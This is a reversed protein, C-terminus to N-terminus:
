IGFTFEVDRLGFSILRRAGNVFALPSDPPASISGRGLAPRSRVRSRVGVLRGNLPQVTGGTRGISWPAIILSQFSGRALEAGGPECARATGSPNIALEFTAVRKPYGWLERGGACSEPSDVWMHTVTASLGGAWRGVVAALLEGYNLISGSQYDVWGAIALGRGGIILPSFGDPTAPLHAAQVALLHFNAQGQLQWPAPPYAVAPGDTHATNVTPAGTM